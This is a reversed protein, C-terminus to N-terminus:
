RIETPKRRAPASLNSRELVLELLENKTVSLLLQGILDGTSMSRFEAELAILGLVNRDVPLEITREESRYRMTLTVRISDPNKTTQDEEMQEKCGKTQAAERSSEEIETMNGNPARPQRLRSLGSPEDFAPRRLSIGLKSCTVQLTAPTVGIIEAIEEKSKGRELLNSIQRINTPTFKTQRQNTPAQNTLPAAEESM